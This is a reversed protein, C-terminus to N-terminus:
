QSWNEKGEECTLDFRYPQQQKGPSGLIVQRRQSILIFVRNNLQEVIVLPVLAMELRRSGGTCNGDAEVDVLAGGLSLEEPDPDFHGTWTM